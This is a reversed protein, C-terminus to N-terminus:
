GNSEEKPVFAVDNVLGEPYKAGRGRAWNAVFNYDRSWVNAVEWGQEDMYRVVDDHGAAITPDHVTCTEVIVLDLDDLNASRLVEIELGQADIVAINADGQVESLPLVAVEIKGAVQDRKAPTNLTSLNTKRMVSLTATGRELGCAAQVVNAFPYKNELAVALDPIPEVLTIEPIGAKIYYPMEEGKHAGVHVIHLPEIALDVMLRPFDTFVTGM